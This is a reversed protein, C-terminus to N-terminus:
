SSIIQVQVQNQKFTSVHFPWPKAQFCTCRSNETHPDIFSNLVQSQETHIIQVLSKEGSIFAVIIKLSFAKCIETYFFKYSWTHFSIETHFSNKPTFTAAYKYPVIVVGYLASLSTTQLSFFIPKWGFWHHSLASGYSSREHEWTNNIVLLGRGPESDVVTTSPSRM